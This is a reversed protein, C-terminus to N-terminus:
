RRVNGPRATAMAGRSSRPIRREARRLRAHRPGTLTDGPLPVTTSGSYPGLYVYRVEYRELLERALAANDTRYLTTVDNVRGLVPTLAGREQWEHNPWGIVTPLGTRASVRGAASYEAGKAELVVPLPIAPLM